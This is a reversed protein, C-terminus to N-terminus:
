SSDTNGLPELGVLKLFFYYIMHTATISNHAFVNAVLQSIRALVPSNKKLLADHSAL